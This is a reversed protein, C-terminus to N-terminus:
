GMSLRRAVPPAGPQRTHPANAKDAFTTKLMANVSSLRELVGRKSGKAIGKLVTSEKDNRWSMLEVAIDRFEPRAEPDHAWARECLSKAEDPWVDPLAPRLENSGARKAIEEILLFLGAFARSRTLLEYMIIASWVILWRVLPRLQRSDPLRPVRPLM